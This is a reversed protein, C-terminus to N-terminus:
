GVVIAPDVGTYMFEECHVKRILMDGGGRDQSHILAGLRLM